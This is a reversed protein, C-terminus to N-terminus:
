WDGYPGRRLLAPVADTVSPPLPVANKALLGKGAAATIEPALRPGEIKASSNGSSKSPPVFQIASIRIIKAGKEPADVPSDVQEIIIHTVGKPLGPHAIEIAGARDIKEAPSLTPPREIMTPVGKPGIAPVLNPDELTVPVGSPFFHGTAPDYIMTPQTTPGARLFVPITSEAKAKEARKDHKGPKGPLRWVRGLVNEWLVWQGVTWIKVSIEIRVPLLGRRVISAGDGGSKKHEDIKEKCRSRVESVGPVKLKDLFLVDWANPAYDPGEAGEDGWFVTV